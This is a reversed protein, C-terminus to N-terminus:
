GASPTTGNSNSVDVAAPRTGDVNNGFERWKVTDREIPWGSPAEIGFESRSGLNWVTVDGLPTKVVVYGNRKVAVTLM